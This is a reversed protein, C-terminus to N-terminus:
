FEFGAALNVHTATLTGTPEAYRTRLHRLELGLVVPAKRWALHGELALNRLRSGAALDADDPDDFGAGGGLEWAPTPKLNLQAWGGTTGVPVGDQVM